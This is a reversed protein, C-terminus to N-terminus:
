PAAAGGPPPSSSGPRLERGRELLLAAAPLLFPRVIGTDVLVGVTLGIGVQELFAIRSLVLSAFTGALVMGCSTVVPGTAELARALAAPYPLARAEERARGLVFVGYDAGIAVLLVFLFFPAKWDLDPWLGAAVCAELAGLAVLYSLLIFATVAFPAAVGRLLAILLAFVGAVIWLSLRDMDARTLADLDSTIATPGALRVRAAALGQAPLLVALADRLRRAEAVSAASNPTDALELEFRAARGDASVYHALARALEPSSAVDQPTLGLRDLIRASGPAAGLADLRARGTELGDRLASAGDVAQGLGAELRALQADLADLDRRAADLRDKAFAALLSRREEAELEARKPGLERRGKAVERRAEALGAALSEAGQRARELGTGLETLQERLTARALLGPEGTPRTASWVRAVGPQAALWEGLQYLGDLAGTDLFGPAADPLEVLLVLPSVEAPEFHRTLAAWGAESVSRAPIDLEVEFSPAIRFGQWALPAVIGGTVALVAVPRRLVLRAIAPWLRAPRATAGRHRPWFLREGALRMLAPALTLVAALTVAVSIALVPGSFAYLGFRAFGMLACAVAVALASTVLVPASARLAAGPADGPRASREERARAFLLLCYDTGVGWVLAVVFGRSQFAVPLGLEAAAVAAGSAVGLAAGLTALSVLAALPARYVLILTIAVLAVTALASSRAGEEIALLYDRGLTADGTFAARLGGARALEDATIREVEAVLQSAGESAFGAVVRVVVLAAAGDRSVLRDWAVADDTPSVVGSALARPLEARLRAALAAVRDRWAAVERPEGTAELVVVAQSAAESGPFRAALAATATRIPTDHRFFEFPDTV